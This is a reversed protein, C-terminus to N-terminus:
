PAGDGAAAPGPSVAGAPHIGARGLYALLEGAATAAGVPGIVAAAPRGTLVGSLALLRDHASGAPAPPVAHTRPRYPRPQGLRVDGGRAAAPPVAPTVVPIAARRAALVAPLPARRLRVGAAEVSCVAPAAVRLRERRGGPLWREAVLADGAPEASVLGLAQAAGLRHALFAPLAGTGRGASRDGCVVLAPRAPGIADALAAALAHEDAALDAVLDDDWGPWEVRLAAAGVAVAEALTAEAAAPGATVALVRGHWAGAVRLATELAAFEAAAATAGAPRHTIRGTLPDAAPRLGAHRLCAVVLPGAGAPPPGDAM